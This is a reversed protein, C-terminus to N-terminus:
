IRFQLVYLPWIETRVRRAYAEAYPEGRPARDGRTTMRDHHHGLEHVLVDLLMYARAQAETWRLEVFQPYKEVPASEVELLALLEADREARARSVWWWLDREWATIVVAGPESLGLWQENGFSISVVNLGIALDEWDPLIALFQRLQAVTVVHRYGPGPDTREIQIESQPRAYFNKHDPTWNNKKAVRGGRVRM